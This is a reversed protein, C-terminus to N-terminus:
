TDDAAEALWAQLRGLDREFLPLARAMTALADLTRRRDLETGYRHRVLHRFTRAEQLLPMLEAALVAPRMGPLEASLQLALERHWDSGTPVIDDVEAAVAKMSEEVGNYADHVAMSIANLLSWELITGSDTGELLAAAETAKALETEARRLHLGIRAFLASIAPRSTSHM